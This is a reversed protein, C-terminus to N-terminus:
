GSGPFPRDIDAEEGTLIRVSSQLDTKQVAIRELHEFGAKWGRQYAKDIDRASRKRWRWAEIQMGLWTCAGWGALYLFILQKNTM